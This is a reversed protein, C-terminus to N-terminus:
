LRVLNPGEIHRTVGRFDVVLPAREVVAQIDLEPHATVIVAVDAEDLAEDLPESALGLGVAAVRRPDADAGVVEHGEETFALALPLGVYGLGVVGIKM